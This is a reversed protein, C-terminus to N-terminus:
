ANAGQGATIFRLGAIQMLEAERASSAVSTTRMVWWAAIALCVYFIGMWGPSMEWRTLTDTSYLSRTYAEYFGYGVFPITLVAIARGWAYLLSKISFPIRIGRFHEWEDDKEMVLYTGMPILPIFFVHLFATAVFLLGPIRDTRGFLRNIGFIIVHGEEL